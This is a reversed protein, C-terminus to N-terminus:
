RAGVQPLAPQSDAWLVFVLCAWLVEKHNRQGHLHEDVLRTVTQPNLVGLHQLHSASLLDLVMDRLEHRFWQDVPLTFGHKRRRLTEPPLLHRCSQKLIYKMISGGLRQRVKLRAPIRAVFEALRHDLFPQRTELSHAMSMRDVKVLIDDPLYVKADYYMFPSLYEGPRSPLRYSEAFRYPQPSGLQGLFDADLLDQAELPRLDHCFFHYDDLALSQLFAKGRTRPPLRRGCATLQRRVADPVLRWKRRRLMRTYRDYGGFLEDSGDGSLAVTVERRTMECLLFTPLASSDAFPEDCHWVLKQLWDMASAKVGQAHHETGFAAAVRQAYP